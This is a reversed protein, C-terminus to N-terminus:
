AFSAGHRLGLWSVSVLDDEWCDSNERYNCEEGIQEVRYRRIRRAELGPRAAAPLAPVLLGAEPPRGRELRDATNCSTKKPTYPRARGMPSARGSKETPPQGEVEFSVKRRPV